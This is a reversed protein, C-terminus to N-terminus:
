VGRLFLRTAADGTKVNKLLGVRAMRRMLLRRLNRRIIPRGAAVALQRDRETRMVAWWIAREASRFRRGQWAEKGLDKAFM